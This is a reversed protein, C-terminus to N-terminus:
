CRLGVLLTLPSKTLLNYEGGELHHITRMPAAAGKSKAGRTGPLFLQKGFM